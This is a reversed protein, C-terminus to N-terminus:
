FGSLPMLDAPVPAAYPQSGSLPHQSGVLGQAFDALARLHRAMEGAGLNMIIGFVIIYVLYTNLLDTHMSGGFYTKQALKM